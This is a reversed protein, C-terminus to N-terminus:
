PRAARAAEEILAHRATWFSDAREPASTAGDLRERLIDAHGAHRNTETLMHVLVNFLTVDPEPWWPVHGPADIPLAVITADAHACARHYRDLIDASSESETAWLDRGRQELDDWRPGPDPAPRGFVAGFYRSESLTLHKVLGLLNTGTHTLPRRIDYESLGDLKAVMVERIWQLDAHLYAKAFDDIM